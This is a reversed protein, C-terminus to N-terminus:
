PEEEFEVEKREEKNEEATNVEIASYQTSVQNDNPQSSTTAQHYSPFISDILRDKRIKQHMEWKPFEIIWENLYEYHHILGQEVMEGLFGAVDEISWDIMPAVIAKIHEPEGKMKGFDDAHPIMWTFLLKAPMSLRNVQLSYSISKSLMRRNAM